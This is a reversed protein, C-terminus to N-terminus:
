PLVSQESLKGVPHVLPPLQWSASGPEHSSAKGRVYRLAPPVDALSVLAKLQPHSAPSLLGEMDSIEHIGCDDSHERGASKRDPYIIPIVQAVM